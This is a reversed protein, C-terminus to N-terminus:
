GCIILVPGLKDFGLYEPVYDNKTITSYPDIDDINYQKSQKEMIKLLNNQNNKL